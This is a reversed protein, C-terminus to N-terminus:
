TIAEKVPIATIHIEFCDVEHTNAIKKVRYSGFADMMLEDSPEIPSIMGDWAVYIKKADKLVYVAEKVKM